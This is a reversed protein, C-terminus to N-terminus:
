ASLRRGGSYDSDLPEVKVVQGFDPADVMLGNGVYIGVHHVPSGFFVLDGPQLSSRSVAQGMGSLAQSSHPLGSLGAQGFSYIVLGSCDFTSPGAAGWVYESGRKSLAINMAQGALGPPALFVGQVGTSKLISQQSASLKAKAAVVQAIQSQLQQAQQSLQDKLAQAATTADQATQLDHQSRQEATTAANVAAQLKSVADYNDSALAQLDSARNLFDKTSSGTLLASIQNFRAGEFSAATLKDVQGRYQDEQATAQQEAQKAAAVDAGAKAALKQQNTLNINAQNLQEGLATAQQSLQNYEAVPDNSAPPTPAPTDATALAPTLSVAVVVATAALAGRLTRKLRHSAVDRM